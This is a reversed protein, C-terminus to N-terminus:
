VTLKQAVLSKKDHVCIVSQTGTTRMIHLMEQKTCLQEILVFPQLGDYSKSPTLHLEDHVQTSLFEHLLLFLLFRM